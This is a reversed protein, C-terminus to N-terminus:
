ALKKLYADILKIDALDKPRKGSAKWKRVETLAAFPVGDIVDATELLQKLTPKYSSFDWNDHAEFDDSTLPEDNPGKKVPKWGIQAFHEKLKPSVLFDIDNSERIGAAAMPCSGFVIYEGEPLNLSKVKTIIEHLKM